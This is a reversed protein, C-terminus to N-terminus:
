YHKSFRSNYLHMILIVNAINELLNKRLSSTNTQGVHGIDMHDHLDYVLKQEPTGALLM